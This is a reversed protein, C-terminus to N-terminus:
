RSNSGKSTTFTGVLEEGDASLTGSYSSSVAPVEVKLTTGDQM